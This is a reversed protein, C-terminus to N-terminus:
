NKLLNNILPLFLNSLNSYRLFVFAIGAILFSAFEDHLSKNADIEKSFYKAVSGNAFSILISYYVLSIIQSDSFNILWHREEPTFNNRIVFVLESSCYSFLLLLSSRIFQKFHLIKDGHLFKSDIKGLIFGLITHIAISSFLFYINTQEEDIQHVIKELINVWIFPILM